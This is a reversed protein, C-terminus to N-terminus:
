QLTSGGNRCRVAVQQRQPKGTATRPLDTVVYIRKPIKFQALRDSCFATLEQESVEARLVVAAHIEEGYKEDPVGFSVAEAVAPHAALVADVEPPSIKEGGRNIMEKIRGVLTLFGDTDLWGEDGTRLWRGVFAAANAAPNNDYGPTVNDGSIVVEGRAEAPLVRGKEDHIAIALGTAIGVTGRKRAAPPLPNSAIQHAAETMGYAQVVPAGFRDELEAWLEPTLAASCSRIFRLTGAPLKEEAARLLVSRHITPVASYWTVRYKTLDGCFSGASFRPPIVVTGGAHLASLTAGLLGHVHFLPMVVLSVDAATLAYCSRITQVSTMLNHHTLPVGKPRSTTGSTHLLLAVDDPRPVGIAAARASAASLAELRVQGGSTLQVEWASVQLTAAADRAAQAGPGLIAASARADAVYFRYEDLTFAPNLPAATAGVWTVALFTTLFELGNPLVIAVRDGPGIGSRRLAQALSDIRDHLEAYTLQLGTDPIIVATQQESGSPLLDALTTQQVSLRNEENRV